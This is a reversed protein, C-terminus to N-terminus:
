GRVKELELWLEFVIRKQDLLESETEQCKQIVDVMVQVLQDIHLALAQEQDRLLTATETWYHLQSRGSILELTRPSIYINNKDDKTKNNTTSITLPTSKPTAAALSLSVISSTITTPSATTVSSLPLLAMSPYPVVVRGYGCGGNVDEVTDVLPNPSPPLAVTWPERTSVPAATTAHISIDDDGFEKETDIPLEELALISEVVQVAKWEPMKPKVTTNSLTSLSGKVSYNNDGDGAEDSADDESDNILTLNDDNDNGTRSSPIIQIEEMFRVRRRPSDTSSM